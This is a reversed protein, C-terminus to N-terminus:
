KGQPNMDKTHAKPVVYTIFGQSGLKSLLKAKAIQEPLMVVLHASVDAKKLSVGLVQVRRRELGGFVVRFFAVLVCGFRSYVDASM